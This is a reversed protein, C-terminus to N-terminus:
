KVQNYIIWKIVGSIFAVPKVFINLYELRHNFVIKSALKIKEKIKRNKLYAITAGVGYRYKRRILKYLSNISSQDHYVWAKPERIGKFGANIARLNIDYDEGGMTLSTDFNGIKDFIEMKWASNGMPIYSIDRVKSYYKARENLYEEYKSQPSNMPKKLGGAFDAKGEVIPFILHSLWEPPAVEDADLFVIIDADIKEMVQNRTEAVSGPFHYLKMNSNVEVYENLVDLLSKESGGDAIIIEDPKRSQDILSDLTRTVRKDNLLTIIVTTKMMSILQFANKM